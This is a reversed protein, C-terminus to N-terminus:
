EGLVREAKAIISDMEDLIYSFFGSYSPMLKRARRLTALMERAVSDVQAEPAATLADALVRSHAGRQHLMMCFNAVDEFNGDNGKALHEILSKALYEESCVEPDNWGYRGREEREWKLKAKMAAAFRDVAEDDPHPKGATPPVIGNVQDGETVFRILMALLQIIEGEVESWEMRREAYHVAGRVVEGAEEAIKLTVYNPQPFKESAKAASARAREILSGFYDTGSAEFVARLGDRVFENFDLWKIEIPISNHARYCGNQLRPWVRDMFAKEADALSIPACGTCIREEAEAEVAGCDACIFLGGICIACFEDECNTHTVARKHTSRILRRAEALRAEAAEARSKERMYADAYTEGVGEFPDPEAFGNVECPITHMNPPIRWLASATEALEAAQAELAAAAERDLMRDSVTYYGTVYTHGDGSGVPEAGNMTSARHELRKILEAYDTM